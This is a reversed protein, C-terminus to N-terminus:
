GFVNESCYELYLFGDDSKYTDYIYSMSQSGSLMINQKSVMIYLSNHENVKLNTKLIQIINAVTLGNSILLKNKEISSLYKETSSKELIVPIKDTYKLLLSNSRKKREEFSTIERYNIMQNNPTISM